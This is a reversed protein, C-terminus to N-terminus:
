SAGGDREPEGGAPKEAPKDAPRDAPKGGAPPPAPKDKAQDTPGQQQKQAQEKRAQEARQARTPRRRGRRARHPDRPRAGLSGPGTHQKAFDARAARYREPGLERELEALGKEHKNLARDRLQELELLKAKDGKERYVEMLREIRATITAHKVELQALRDAPAAGRAADAGRSADAPHAQGREAPPRDTQAGQGQPARDTQAGRPAQGQPAQDTPKREAGPRDAPPAAPHARDGEKPREGAPRAEGGRQPKAAPAAQGRGQDSGAPRGEQATAPSAAFALWLAGLAASAWMSQKQM